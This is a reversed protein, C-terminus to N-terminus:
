YNGSWNGKRYTPMPSCPGICEFHPSEGMSTYAEPRCRQDQGFDSNKGFGCTANNGYMGQSVHTAYGPYFFDLMTEKALEFM